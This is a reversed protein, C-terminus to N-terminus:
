CYFRTYFKRQIFPNFTSHPNYLEEDEDEEEAEDEQDSKAKNERKHTLDMSDILEDVVSLQEETPKYKTSTLFNELHSRRIDNEFPLRMYLLCATESTIYPILAALEPDSRTSYVRRVIGYVDSDFMAHVMTVFAEQVNEGASPDPQIQSVGESLFHHRQVNSSDTFGLIDFCKEAKLRLSEPDDIPIYTTGYRYADIVDEKEDLDRQEEDKTVRTRETKLEM